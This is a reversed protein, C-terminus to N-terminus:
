PSAQARRPGTFRFERNRRIIGQEVFFIAQEAFMIRQESVFWKAQLANSDCRL